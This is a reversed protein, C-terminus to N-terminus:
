SDVDQLPISITITTSEWERSDISLTGDPYMAKIRRNINGLGIGVVDKDVLTDEGGELQKRITDLTCENIGVGTDSITIVLKGDRDFVHVSVKGGEVKPSIGHIM